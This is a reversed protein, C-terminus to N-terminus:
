SGDCTNPKRRLEDFSLRGHVTDFAMEAASTGAPYAPLEADAPRGRAESLLRGQATEVSVSLNAPFQPPAATQTNAFGQGLVILGDRTAQDVPDSAQWILVFNGDEGAPPASYVRVGKVEDGTCIPAYVATAGGVQAYGLTHAVQEGSCDAAVLALCALWCLAWVGRKILM